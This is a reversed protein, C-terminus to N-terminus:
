GKLGSTLGKAIRDQAVAFIILMPIMTIVLGAFLEVWQARYLANVSLGFIGVPITQRNEDTLFVLAYFFENWVNLTNLLAVSAIAPGAQPVVITAFTRLPSAGDVYAAEELEKPLSSLFSTFVFVSFPIQVAIYVLALGTLSGLLHLQRLMSYLPIIVLFAPVMLGALFFFRVMGRGRFEIRALVYAAMLSVILGVGVALVTVYMSNLFYRGIQAHNWADVYNHAHAHKPVSWPSSSFFEPNSKLSVM